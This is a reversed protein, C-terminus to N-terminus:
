VKYDGEYPTTSLFRVKVLPAPCAASVPSVLFVCLTKTLFGSLLLLRLHFSLILITPPPPTFKHPGPYPCTTHQYFFFLPSAIDDQMFHTINRSRRNPRSNFILRSYRSTIIVRFYFFIMLSMQRFYASVM